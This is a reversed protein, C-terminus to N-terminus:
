FACCDSKKKDKGYGSEAAQNLSTRWCLSTLSYLVVSLEVSDEGLLDLAAKM